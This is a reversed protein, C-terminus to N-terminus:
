RAHITFYGKRGAIFPGRKGTTADIWCPLWGARPDIQNMRDAAIKAESYRKFKM